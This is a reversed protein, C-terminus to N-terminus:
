FGPRNLCALNAFYSKVSQSREPLFNLGEVAATLTVCVVFTPVLRWFRAKLFEGGTRGQTSYRMCYGSIMFFIVVGHTGSVGGGLLGYHSLVVLAVSLVRLVDVALNRADM